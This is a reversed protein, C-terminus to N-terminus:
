SNLIKGLEPKLFSGIYETLATDSFDFISKGADFSIIFGSDLGNASKLTIQKKTKEALQRFFEKELKEKDLPNLSIIIESGLSLPANKILAEIIKLLENVTLAQHTDAKILNDLMSNIEGRLSILLDRGAQKLSAHTSDNLRQADTNAQQVIRSAEIKAESIIKLSARAAEAKIQAAKEEAAQIGEQQIKAILDKIEQAM